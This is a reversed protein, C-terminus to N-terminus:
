TLDSMRSALVKQMTVATFRSKAGFKPTRLTAHCPHQALMVDYCPAARKSLARQKTKRHRWPPQQLSFRSMTHGRAGTQANPRQSLFFRLVRIFHGHVENTPCKATNSPPTRLANSVFLEYQGLQITCTVDCATFELLSRGLAKLSTCLYLYVPLVVQSALSTM